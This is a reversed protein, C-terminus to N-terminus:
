NLIKPKALVTGEDVDKGIYIKMGNITGLLGLHKITKVTPEQFDVKPSGNFCFKVYDSMDLHVSEYSSSLEKLKLLVEESESSFSESISVDSLKIKLMSM